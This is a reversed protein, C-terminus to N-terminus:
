SGGGTNINTLAGEVSTLPDVMIVNVLVFVGLWIKATLSLICYLIESGWYFGPPLAQFIQQVFAFSIFIVVTGVVLGEVWLPITETTHEKLDYIECYLHTIM